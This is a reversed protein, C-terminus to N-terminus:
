AISRSNLDSRSEKLDQREERYKSITKISEFTLGLVWQKICKGADIGLFFHFIKWNQFETWNSETVDRQMLRFKLLINRRLTNFNPAEDNSALGPLSETVSYDRVTGFISVSHIHAHQALYVCMVDKCVRPNETVIRWMRSPFLMVKSLRAVYDM